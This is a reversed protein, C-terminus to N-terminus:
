RRSTTYLVPGIVLLALGILKYEVPAIDSPILFFLLGFLMINLSFVKRSLPITGLVSLVFAALLAHGAHYNLLFNDLLDLPVFELM